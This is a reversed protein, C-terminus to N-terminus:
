PLRAVADKLAQWVPRKLAPDAAMAALSPLGEGDLRVAVAGQIPQDQLGATAVRLGPQLGRVADAMRELLEIEQPGHADAHLCLDVAPQAPEAVPRLPAEPEALREAPVDGEAPLCATEAAPVPAGPFAVGPRARWQPIGLEALAAHRSVTM